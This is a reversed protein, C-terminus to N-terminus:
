HHGVQREGISRIMCHLVAADILPGAYVFASCAFSASPCSCHPCAVSSCADPALTFWPCQPCQRARSATCTADADDSATASPARSSIRGTVRFGHDFCFCLVPCFVRPLAHHAAALVLYRLVLENRYRGFAHGGEGGCAGRLLDASNFSSFSVMAGDRAAAMICPLYPLASGCPDCDIFDFMRRSRFVTSCADHRIVASRDCLRAAAM